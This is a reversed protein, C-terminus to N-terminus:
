EDERRASHHLPCAQRHAGAQRLAQYEIGFGPENGYPLMAGNAIYPENEKTIKDHREAVLNPQRGIRALPKEFWDGFLREMHDRYDEIM